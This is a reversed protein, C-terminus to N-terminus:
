KNGGPNIGKESTQSVDPDASPLDVPREIEGSMKIGGKIFNQNLLTSVTLFLILVISIFFSVLAYKFFRSKFKQNQENITISETLNALLHRNFEFSSKTSYKDYFKKCEPDVRYKQPRLVLLFFILTTLLGAIALLFILLHDASYFKVFDKSFALGFLASFIVGLFAVFFGAKNELSDSFSSLHKLQDFAIDVLKEINIEQNTKEKIEQIRFLKKLFNIIM